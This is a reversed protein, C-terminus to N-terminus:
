VEKGNDLYLIRGCSHCFTLDKDAMLKNLTQSTISMFCGQCVKNVVSVIAVADKHSVLRQYQQLVDKDLATECVTRKKKLELIEDELVKLDADVKKKLEELQLEEQKVEKESSKYRQQMEEYATMLKLIEDEIVSKNAEKGGIELKIAGYEKNTKVQNMQLRLKNIDAELSKLDLEKGSIKKYFTKIEESTKSLEGKRQQIHNLKKQVDYNRYLKDGEVIKLKTDLSQLRCLADTKESM